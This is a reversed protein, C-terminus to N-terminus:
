GHLYQNGTMSAVRVLKIALSHAKDKVRCPDAHGMLERVTDLPIGAMILRSAFHHRLDHFRFRELEALKVLNKWSKKITTMRKGDLSSFVYGRGSGQRRWQRLIARAEQNLSNRHSLSGIRETIVNPELRRHPRRAFADGKSWGPCECTDASSKFIVHVHALGRASRAAPQASHGNGEPREGRKVDQQKYGIALWRGRRACAAGSKGPM